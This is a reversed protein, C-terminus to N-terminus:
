ETRLAIVPDKKSAIRSPILGAIFTLFVSIVVLIIGAATPLAALNGIDTLHDILLNIPVLLALTVLIGMIGAVFGITITEANFVRSIDRKSAGISRLIGIEKTRELVSIYTIIGIMISSVVLSVAVFAILIYSIANIITTVSSMMLGIYDTYTLQNEQEAQQNYDNIIQVIQDKAEFDKPFLLIGSPKGLDSVGFLTLNGEYTNTTGDASSLITNAIEDESMGSARMQQVYASTEAQQEAPLSALYAQLDEATYTAQADESAAFKQGTLVDVDPNAKQEKVIESDNVQRILYEMLDGRYGVTGTIASSRADESPKLIGVVRIEQADALKSFIYAQNDSRDEWIGDQQEFYDTNVLLKFKLALIEDYTFRSQETNVVVENGAYADSMAQRLEAQDLLGLSYLTVDAVENNEDMIVVVEDYAEPFRGAVVEYQARLTEDNGSLQRWVNMNQMPTVTTGNSGTYGGTTFGMNEFLMNPNVQILGNTTDANYINMPTSYTYRIETTYDTLNTQGSEIYKKFAELNNNAAGQVMSDIMGTMINNSYVADLPHGTNENQEMMSVMISNFDVSASELEVPYSSLTDREVSDIYESAGNSMSLILAIGIIGISGAFATLITRAKKTMLNQFSLSLATFFSMSPKKAKQTDPEIEDPQATYPMSDSIIKGDLLRIIRTSYTTALEPNHTVMIVLRDHAVEKLLDMVQM